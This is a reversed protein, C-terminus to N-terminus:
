CYKARWSTDIAAETVFASSGKSVSHISWFILNVVCSCLLRLNPIFHIDGSGCEIFWTLERWVMWWREIIFPNMPEINFLQGASQDPRSRPHLQGRGASNKNGWIDAKPLLCVYVRGSRRTKQKHTFYSRWISLASMPTPHSIIYDPYYRWRISFTSSGICIQQDEGIWGRHIVTQDPQIWYEAM